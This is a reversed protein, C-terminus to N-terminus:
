FGSEKMRFKGRVVMEVEENYHYLRDSLHQKLPGLRLIGARKLM